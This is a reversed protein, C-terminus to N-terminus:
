PDILVMVQFCHAFEIFGSMCEVLGLYTCKQAVKSKDNCGNAYYRTKKIFIVLWSGSYVLNLM